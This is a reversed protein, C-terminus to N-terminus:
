IIGICKTFLKNFDRKKKPGYFVKYKDINEKQYIFSNSKNLKIQENFDKCIIFKYDNIEHDNINENEKDWEFDFILKTSKYFKMPISNIYNIQNPNIFIINKIFFNPLYLNDFNYNLLIRNINKIGRLFYLIYHNFITM